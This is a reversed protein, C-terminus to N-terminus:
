QQKIQPPPTSNLIKQDHMHLKKCWWLYEISLCLKFYISRMVMNIQEKQDIFNM